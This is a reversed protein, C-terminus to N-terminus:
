DVSRLLEPEKLGAAVRLLECLRMIYIRVQRVAGITLALMATLGVAGEYRLPAGMFALAWCAAVLLGSLLWLGNTLVAERSILSDDV